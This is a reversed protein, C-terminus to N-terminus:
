RLRATPGVGGYLVFPAWYVPRRLKEGFAGTAFDRKTAALAVDTAEGLNLRKFFAEMFKATSEDNVQWLTMVTSTNGAVYLAYPLGMVGEGQVVKGLGTECASMVVLDSRLTYGPWEAATIYGDVNPPNADQSLVLASLAPVAPSLFGHVSFLLREYKALEGRQDLAQLRAESAQEGLLTDVRGRRVAGRVAAVERATGPLEDWDAERLLGVAENVNEDSEALASAATERNVSAGRLPATADNGVAAVNAVGTPREARYVPNGVALLARRAPLRQYQASRQQLLGLMSLSQVYTVGHSESLWHAGGPGEAFPLAEFPLTALAGDPSILLRRHRGIEAQLPQLLHASLLRGIPQADTVAVAGETPPQNRPGVRYHDPAVQWVLQGDALADGVLRRYADITEGLGVLAPLEIAQRLGTADIAFAMVREHTVLYSVFLTDAPLWRRADALSAQPPAALRAYRPHRARLGATTDAYARVERNREAELAQRRDAQTTADLDRDIQALRAEHGDVEAQAARPLVGSRNAQQLATSELLTRAKSREALAFASEGEGARVSSLAQMRYGDVYREFLTRRSKPSLGHQARLQEVGTEFAKMWRRQDGLSGAALAAEMRDLLVLLTDPHNDGFVRRMGEHTREFELLAADADGGMLHARGVSQRARLALPHNEPTVRLRAALAAQTVRLAAPADDLLLLISGHVNMALLTEPHNAGSLEALMQWAALSQDRAEGLRGVRRLALALDTQAAAAAPHREGVAQRTLALVRQFAAISERHRSLLGYTFGVSRLSSLTDPATPGLVKARAEHIQEHLTLADAYRGLEALAVAVGNKFRLTMPDTAGWLREAQASIEQEIALAEAHRGLDSLSTTMNHRAVLTNRHEPGRQALTHRYIAQQDALADACRGVKCWEIARANRVALTAPEDAGWFRARVAVRQEIWDVRATDDFRAGANEALLFLVHDRALYEGMRDEGDDPVARLAAQLEHGAAVWDSQQTLGQARELAARSLEFAPGSPVATRASQGNASAFFGISVCFVSVLWFNATRM